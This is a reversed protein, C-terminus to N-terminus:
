AAGHDVGLASEAWAIAAASPPGLEADVADLWEDLTRAQRYHELAAAVYGSMSAAEGRRVAHRAGTALEDPLSITLKVTM